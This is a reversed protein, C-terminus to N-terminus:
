RMEGVGVAVDVAAAEAEDVAEGVGAAVAADVGPLDFEVHSEAESEGSLGIERLRACTRSGCVQHTRQWYALRVQDPPICYRVYDPSFYPSLKARNV